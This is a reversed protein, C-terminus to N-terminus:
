LKIHVSGVRVKDDLIGKDQFDIKPNIQYNDRLVVVQQTNFWYADHYGRNFVKVISYSNLIPPLIIRNDILSSDTIIMIYSSNEMSIKGALETENTVTTVFYNNDLKEYYNLWIPLFNAFMYIRQKELYRETTPVYLVQIDEKTIGQNSLYEAGEKVNIQSDTICMPFFVCLGIVVGSIIVGAIITKQIMTDKICVITVSGLLAIAPYAPLYYKYMTHPIFIIPIIMWFIIPIINYQKKIVCYLISMIALIAPIIGLAIPLSRLYFFSKGFNFISLLLLPALFIFIVIIDNRISESKFQSQLILILRKYLNSKIVLVKLQYLMLPSLILILLGIIFGICLVTWNLSIHYFENTFELIRGSFIPSLYLFYILCPICSTLLLNTLRRYFQIRNEQIVINILFGVFIGVLFIPALIKSFVALFFFIASIIMNFLKGDNIYSYSFYAFITIYFISIIDILMLPIQTLLFPFTLFLFSAIIGTKKSHIKMGLLFIFFGTAITIILSFIQIIIRKEGFISFLIGYHLSGTPLDVHTAFGTGWQEFYYFIGQNKFINAYQIYRIFDPNTEPICFFFFQSLVALLILSIFFKGKWHTAIINDILDNYIAWSILVFIFIFILFPIIPSFEGYGMFFLMDRYGTFASGKQILFLNFSFLIPISILTIIYWPSIKKPPIISSIM